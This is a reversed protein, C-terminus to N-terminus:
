GGRAGRGGGGRGEVATAAAGDAEVEMAGAGTGAGAGMGAGAGSSGEAGAGGAAELEARTGADARLSQFTLAHLRAARAARAAQEERARRWAVEGAAAAGDAPDFALLLAARAPRVGLDAPRLSVRGQAEHESQGLVAAARPASARMVLHFGSLAAGGAYSSASHATAAAAREAATGRAGPPPPPPPLLAAHRHSNRASPLVAGHERRALARRRLRVDAASRAIATALLNTGGGKDGGDGGGGGGGGGAGGGSKSGGEAAAEIAHAVAEATALTGYAVTTDEGPARQAAVAEPAARYWLTQRTLDAGGGTCPFSDRWQRPSRQQLQKMPSAAREDASWVKRLHLLSYTTLLIGFWLSGLTSRGRAQDRATRNGRRSVGLRFYKM